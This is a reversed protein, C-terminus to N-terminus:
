AHHGGRLCSCPPSEAELWPAVSPNLCLALFMALAATEGVAMWRLGLQAAALASGVLAAHEFGGLCRLAAYPDTCTMRHRKLILDAEAGAIALARGAAVGGLARADGRWSECEQAPEIPDDATGSEAGGLQLAGARDAPRQDADLEGRRRTRGQRSRDDFAWSAEARPGHPMSAWAWCDVLQIWARNTIAAGAGEGQARIWAVGDLKAREVAHRGASLALDLQHADMAPGVRSDGTGPGLDFRQAGPHLAAGAHRGLDLRSLSLADCEAYVAGGHRGADCCGHLMRHRVQEVVPSRTACPALCGGMEGSPSAYVVGRAQAITALGPGSLASGPESGTTPSTPVPAPRQQAVGHDAVMRLLRGGSAGIRAPESHARAAPVLLWLPWCRDPKMMRREAEVPRKPEAM